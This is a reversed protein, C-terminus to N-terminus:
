INRGQALRSRYHRQLKRVKSVYSATAPIIRANPWVGVKSGGNYYSLALDVRGRYRKVLRNLFHLGLRINLRAEWLREARIGYESQATAPMIQM